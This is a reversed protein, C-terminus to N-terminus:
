RASAIQVPQPLSDMKQELGKVTNLFDRLDKGDLKRGSPLKVSLPNIQAGAM